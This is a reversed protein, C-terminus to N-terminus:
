SAGRALALGSDYNFAAALTLQGYYLQAVSYLYNANTWFSQADAASFGISTLATVQAAENAGLAAVYGWLKNIQLCADRLSVACNGLQVNLGGTNVQNGVAM